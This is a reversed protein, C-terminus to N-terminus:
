RRARGLKVMGLSEGAQRLFPLPIEREPRSEVRLYLGLLLLIHLCEGDVSDLGSNQQVNISQVRDSIAIVSKGDATSWKVGEGVDFLFSRGDTFRLVGTATSGTFSVRAVLREGVSELVVSQRFVGRRRVVLIGGGYEMIASSNSGNV